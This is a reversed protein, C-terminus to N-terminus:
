FLRFNKAWVTLIHFFVFCFFDVEFLSFNHYVYFNFCRLYQASFNQRHTLFYLPLFTLHQPVHSLHSPKPKNMLRILEKIFAFIYYVLFTPFPSTISRLYYAVLIKKCSKILYKILNITVDVLTVSIHHLRVGSCNLIHVGYGPAFFLTTNFALNPFM